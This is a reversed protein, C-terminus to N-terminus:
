CHRRQRDSLSIHRRDVIEGIRVRCLGAVKFHGRTAVPARAARNIDIDVPLTDPDCLATAAVYIGANVAWVSIKHHQEIFVARHHAAKACAIDGPWVTDMYVVVAVHPYGVTAVILTAVIRRGFGIAMLNVFKAGRTNVEHRQTLFGATAVFLIEECRVVHVNGGVAVNEDGLSVGVRCTCSSPYEFKVGITLKQHAKAFHAGVVTLKHLGM